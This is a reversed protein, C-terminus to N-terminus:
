VHARGINNKESDLPRLMIDEDIKSLAEVHIGNEIKRSQQSQSQSLSLSKLSDDDTYVDQLWKHKLAEEATM